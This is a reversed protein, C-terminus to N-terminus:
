AVLERDRGVGASAIANELYSFVLLELVSVPKDSALSAFGLPRVFCDLHLRIITHSAFVLTPTILIASSRLWEMGVM